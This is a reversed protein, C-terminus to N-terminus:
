EKEESKEIQEKVEHKRAEKELSEKDKPILTNNEILYDFLKKEKIRNVFEEQKTVDANKELYEDVQLNLEDAFEKIMAQEDVETIELPLKKLLYNVIYYGKIDFYATKTYYGAIEEPSKNLLRAYPEALKQSYSMVSTPPIDFPNHEILKILLGKQKERLNTSEVQNQISNIIDNRMAELSEFDANKAFDDNIEPLILKKIEKITIRVRFEKDDDKLITDIVDNVKSGTLTKNFDEGYNNENLKIENIDLLLHENELGEELNEISIILRDGAEAPGEVSEEKAMNKRINEITSDVMEQSYDTHLYPVELGTYKTIEVAPEVEYQFIMILDKGKEWDINKPIGEYLPEINKEKLATEYYEFVKDKLYAERAQEFFLNDVMSIPAKGKRFGPVVVYNKFKQLVAHYDNKADEAPITITMEKVCQDLDKIEVNM